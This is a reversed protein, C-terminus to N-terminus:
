RTKNVRKRKGHVGKMKAPGVEVTALAVKVNTQLDESGDSNIAAVHLDNM